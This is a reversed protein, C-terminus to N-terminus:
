EKANSIFDVEKKTVGFKNRVRDLIAKSSATKDTFETELFHSVEKAGKNKWDARFAEKIAKTSKLNGESMQYEQANYDAISNRERELLRPNNRLKEAQHRIRQASSIKERRVKEKTILSLKELLPKNADLMGQGIAKGRDLENVSKMFKNQLSAEKGMGGIRRFFDRRSMNGAMRAKVLGKLVPIRGTRAIVGLLGRFYGLLGFGIM